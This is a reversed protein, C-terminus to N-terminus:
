TWPSRAYVEFGFLDVAPRPPLYRFAFHPLPGPPATQALRLLGSSGFSETYFLRQLPSPPVDSRLQRLVHFAHCRLPLPVHIGPNWTVSPSFHFFFLCWSGLGSVHLVERFIGVRNLARVWFFVESRCVLPLLRYRGFIDIVTQQPSAFCCRASVPCM